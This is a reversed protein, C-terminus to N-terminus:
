PENFIQVLSLRGHVDMLILGLLQQGFEPDGDREPRNGIGRRLCDLRRLTQAAVMGGFGAGLVLATREM